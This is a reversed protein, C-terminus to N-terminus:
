AFEFFEQDDLKRPDRKTIYSFVPKPPKCNIKLKIAFHDSIDTTIVQHDCVLKQNNTFLLDIITKSSKFCRTYETVLQTYQNLSMLTEFSDKMSSNSSWDLNFDGVM